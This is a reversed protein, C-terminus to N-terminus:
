PCLSCAEQMGAVSPMQRIRTSLHICRNLANNAIQWGSFASFIAAGTERQTVQRGLSIGLAIVGISGAVGVAKLVPKARKALMFTLAAVAPYYMAMYRLHFIFFLLIMQLILGRWSPMRLRDMLVTLWILSLGIFLADSSVYNCIYPVLPNLVLFGFLIRSVIEGLSCWRKLWLILGLSAAQVLVYQLTVLFTDSVWVWHVARLFISYGIPRYGIADRHVAAQIYSYSDTFYDSYPYCYKFLIWEVAMVPLLYVPYGVRKLAEKAISPM